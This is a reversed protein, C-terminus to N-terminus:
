LSQPWIDDTYNYIILHPYWTINYKRIWDLWEKTGDNSNNNIIYHKYNSYTTNDNICNIHQITYELRNYARTIVAVKKNLSKISM